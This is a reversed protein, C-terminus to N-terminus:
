SIDARAQQNQIDQQIPTLLQLQKVQVLQDVIHRSLGSPRGNPYANYRSGLAM